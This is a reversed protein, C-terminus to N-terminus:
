ISRKTLQSFGFISSLLPSSLCTKWVNGWTVFGQSVNSFSAGGLKKFSSKLSERTQPKLAWYMPCDLPEKHSNKYPLWKPVQKGENVSGYGWGTAGDPRYVLYFDFRKWQLQSECGQGASILKADSSFCPRPIHTVPVSLAFLFVACSTKLDFSKMDVQHQRPYLCYLAQNKKWMCGLLHLLFM